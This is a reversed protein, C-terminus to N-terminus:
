SSATASSSAASCSAAGLPRHRLRGRVPAARARAALAGRRARLGRPRAVPEGRARGGALETSSSRSVGGRLADDLCRELFGVAQELTRRRDVRDAGLEKPLGAYFSHLAQARGLRAADRRGRRRDDAAVIVREFLWASSCDVFRELETSASCRGRATCGRSRAPSRLRTDRDFAARARALRRTGATRRPSRWACSPRGVDAFCRRAGAAARAGDAGRRAAVHAALAAAADDRARRRRSRVGGRGRGLVPEARAADRRRDGGGARPLAPAVARTCATYFLYRDRASRTPGSSGRASSRAPPRRRPVALHALPAAALGEELGLM